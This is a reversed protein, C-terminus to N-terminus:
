FLSSNDEESMKYGTVGLEKNDLYVTNEPNISIRGNAILSHIVFPYIFREPGNRLLNGIVDKDDETYGRLSIDTSQALVPGFRETPSQLYVSCRLSSENKRLAQVSAEVGRVLYDKTTDGPYLNLVRNKYRNLFKQGLRRRFGALVILDPTFRDELLSIIAADYYDRSEDDNPDTGLSEFYKKSSLKIVPIGYGEAVEVGKCGPVNTFVVEVKGYNPVGNKICLQQQEYIPILNSGSGSIFVALRMPSRGPSFIPTSTQKEM